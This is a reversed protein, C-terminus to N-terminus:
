VGLMETEVSIKRKPSTQTPSLVCRDLEAEACVIDIPAPIVQDGAACMHEFYLRPSAVTYTWLPVDELDVLNYLFHAHESWMQRRSLAGNEIDAM